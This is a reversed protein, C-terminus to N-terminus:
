REWSTGAGLFLASSRQPYSERCAEALSPTRRYYEPEEQHITECGSLAEVVPIEVFSGKELVKRRRDLLCFSIIRKLTAEADAREARVALNSNKASARSL